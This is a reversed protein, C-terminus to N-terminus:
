LCAPFIPLRAAAFEGAASEGRAVSVRCHPLTFVALACLGFAWSCCRGHGIWGRRRHGSRAAGRGLIRREIRELFRQVRASGGRRDVAQDLVEVGGALIAGQEVGEQELSAM